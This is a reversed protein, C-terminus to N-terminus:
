LNLILVTRPVYKIQVCGWRCNENTWCHTRMASTSVNMCTICLIFGVPFPQFPGGSGVWEQSLRHHPNHVIRMSVGGFWHAWFVGDWMYSELSLFRLNTSNRLQLKWADPSPVFKFTEKSLPNNTLNQLCSRNIDSGLEM